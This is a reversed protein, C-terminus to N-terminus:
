CSKNETKTQWRFGGWKRLDKVPNFITYGSPLVELWGGRYCLSLCKILSWFVAVVEWKWSINRISHQEARFHTYHCSTVALFICRVGRGWLMSREPFYPFLFTKLQNKLFGCMGCLHSHFCLISWKIEFKFKWKKRLSSM